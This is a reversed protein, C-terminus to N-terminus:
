SQSEPEQPHLPPVTYMSEVAIKFRCWPTKTKLKSMLHVDTQVEGNGFCLIIAVLLGQFLFVPGDTLFVSM